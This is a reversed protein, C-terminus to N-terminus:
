LVMGMQRTRERIMPLYDENLEILIASRGYEEAVMGVTGSGGFPDLVVDGPKTGALICPRILDAPFTAFHSGKFPSSPVTWVSRKNRRGVVLALAADFSGNSKVGSGHEVLKRGTGQHGATKGRDFRSGKWSGPVRGEGKPVVSPLGERPGRTQSKCCEVLGVSDDDGVVAGVMEEYAKASENFRRLQEGTAKLDVKSRLVMGFASMRARAQKEQKERLINAAVSTALRAHTQESCEESIAEADYFYRPKKSFLFIYEHSKTCRDKASEPMTNPKQWIIDQRLYWGDSRLAFALMWPVGILDKHKYGPPATRWGNVESAGKWSKDARAEMFCGGGGRGGSSYTDGMNVWLTGDDRLVRRVERFVEVLSAVLAEPTRETGIERGKDPHGKPLYSRLAFYPPSTVCCQVSKDPLGKLVERCDGKLVTLM